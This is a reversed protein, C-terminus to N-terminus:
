PCYEDDEMPQNNVVKSQLLLELLELKSKLMNIESIHENTMSEQRMRYNDIQKQYEIKTNCLDLKTNCLEMENAKLISYVNQLHMSTTALEQALRLISM